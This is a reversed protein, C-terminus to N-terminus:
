MVLGVVKSHMCVISSYLCFSLFFSYSFYYFQKLKFTILFTCINHNVYIFYLLLQQQGNHIIPRSKTLKILFILQFTKRQKPIKDCTKWELKPIRIYFIKIRFDVSFKIIISCSMDISNEIDIWVTAFLQDIRLLFFSSSSLLFDMIKM